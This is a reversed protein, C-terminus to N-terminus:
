RITEEIKGLVLALIAMRVYMGNRTQTTLYVARPDDDVEELIEGIRPLPHMLITKASAYKNFIRKSVIFKNNVSKYEEESDFREKQVRTWYWFDCDKPIEDFSSIEKLKIGTKSFRSFDKKSLKLKDPSLLYLENNKFYSLGQILSHVTRGNLLDGAIVGRLSSLRGNRDWITYLDLLAQTPHEGIGDGANIIPVRKAAAAAIEAQGKTPHRLVIIDCYAEFVRITDEFSEGKSVSSFAQPNEVVITKADLQKAAADFSSRTRSSPEYFLLTILKGSLLNLPFGRRGAEKLMDTTEFLKIISDNDFQSLSVIDKGLFNSKIPSLSTSIRAM